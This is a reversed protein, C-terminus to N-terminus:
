MWGYRRDFFLRRSRRCHLPVLSDSRPLQTAAM